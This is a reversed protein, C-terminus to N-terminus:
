QKELVPVLSQLLRKKDLKAVWCEHDDRGYALWIYNEDSIYGCPFLCRIPKWYPKYDIGKYFNKGIIPTPSVSTIAFPPEKSFTYAGIFYHLIKEGNSHVTAMEKSSHFFSLYQDNEPLGPTGGRLAGWDWVISSKSLAITDCVGSGDLRPYFIKHPLLSYALLLNGQYEFPVWSKERIERSEGEYQSLCEIPDPIFHEGDYFLEAVYMRFGGKSIKSEINDDYIMFLRDGISLLRADEARCPAIADEDRLNLLQPKSVPDFDENLFIVGMQTDFSHKPDPIIRYSLLFHGCWRIIGPNFAFPHGPIEIKKIELVFDQVMVELDLFKNPNSFCLTSAILSIVLAVLKM